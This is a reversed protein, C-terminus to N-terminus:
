HFLKQRESINANCSSVNFFLIEYLFVYNVNILEILLRLFLFLIYIESAGVTLAVEGCESEPLLGRSHLLISALM